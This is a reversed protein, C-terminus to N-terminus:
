FQERNTEAQAVFLGQGNDVFRIMLHRNGTFFWHRSDKASLTRHEAALEDELLGLADGRGCRRLIWCSLSVEQGSRHTKFDSLLQDCFQSREFENMANDPLDAIWVLIWHRQHSTANEYLYSLDALSLGFDSLTAAIQKDVKRTMLSLIPRHDALRFLLVAANWQCRYDAADGIGRLLSEVPELGEPELPWSNIANAIGRVETASCVKTLDCLFEADSLGMLAKGAMDCESEERGEDACIAALPAAVLDRIRRAEPLWLAGTAQGDLNLRVLENALSRSHRGFVEATKDPAVRATLCATAFLSRDDTGDSRMLGSVQSLLRQPSRQMADALVAYTPFDAHLAAHFVVGFAQPESDLLVLAARSAVLPDQSEMAGKLRPEAWWRYADIQEVLIPATAIESELLREVLQDSRGQCWFYVLGVLVLVSMLSTVIARQRTWFRPRIVTRLDDAMEAASLYRDRPRKALARLCIRNLEASLPHARSPPEPQDHLIQRALEERDKSQFPPEGCLLEYFVCGLSFVDSAPGVDHWEGRIQEPSMYAPTGGTRTQTAPENIQVALGFDGVFAHGDEGLFVNEPKVDRHIVGHRHAFDLGDAISLLIEIASDMEKSNSRDSRLYDRLDGGSFYRSVVFCLGDAQGVDYVPVISAHNLAALVRAESLFFENQEHTRVLDPHPIKIAVERALQDDYALLVVGFGGRGLVTRVQYRGLREPLLAASNTEGHEQDGISLLRDLETRWRNM